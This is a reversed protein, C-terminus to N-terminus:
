ITGDDDNRPSAKVDVGKVAVDGPFWAHEQECREESRGDGHDMRLAAGAPIPEKNNGIGHGQVGEPIMAAVEFPKRLQLTTHM